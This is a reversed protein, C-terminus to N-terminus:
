PNKAMMLLLYTCTLLFSIGAGGALLVAAACLSVACVRAASTLLDSRKPPLRETAQRLLLAGDLEGLPLLNFVCLVANAALFQMNGCLYSALSLALNVTCGAALVATKRGRTLHELESSIRIGAGYLTISRLPAGFACMMILHGLEHCLCACLASAGTGHEDFFFFLAMVAFFSFDLRLATNCLKIELM